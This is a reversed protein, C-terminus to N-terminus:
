DVPPPELRYRSPAAGFRKGFATAFHAADAFGTAIAIELIPLDTQRLLECSKDLRLDRYFSGASRGLGARFQRNLQRVSVGVVGALDALPLPDAIHNEMAEIAALVAHRNTGYRQALGARQPGGAPRVDTHMFWDSVNRAFDPGHHEAILAHMMDLPATGGACTIRDRDVVYLTRELLLGPHREALAAAHEWHITMRRNEMVGANALIAPGGSVGGLMRGHRAQRRLWQFTSADRFGVPDGGAVVFALDYDGSAESLPGAGVSAASSSNLTGSVTRGASFYDIEYVRKGALLNAARLPETVAAFSMLAFGEVLLVAIRRKAFAPEAM